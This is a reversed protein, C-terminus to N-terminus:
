MDELQHFIEVGDKMWQERFPVEEVEDLTLAHTMPHEYLKLSGSEFEHESYGSGRMILDSKFNGSDDSMFSHFLLESEEFEHATVTMDMIPAGGSSMKVRLESGDEAETFEGLIDEMLHPLKWRDIGQNRGDATSCGVMFPYM